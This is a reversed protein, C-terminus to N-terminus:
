ISSPLICVSVSDMAANRCFLSFRGSSYRIPRSLAVPTYVAIGCAATAVEGHSAGAHELQCRAQTAWPAVAVSVRFGCGRHRAPLM